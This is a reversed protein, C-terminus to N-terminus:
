RRPCSSRACDVASAGAALLKYERVFEPGFLLRFTENEEDALDSHREALLALMDRDKSWRGLLKALGSKRNNKVTWAQEITKPSLETLLVKM